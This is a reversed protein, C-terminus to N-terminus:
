ASDPMKEIGRSNKATKRPSEHGYGRISGGGVRLWEYVGPLGALEDLQVRDRHLSERAFSQERAMRHAVTRTPVPSETKRFETSPQLLSLAAVISSKRGFAAM